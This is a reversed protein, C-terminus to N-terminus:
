NDIHQPIYSWQSPKKFTLNSLDPKWSENLLMENYSSAMLNGGRSSERKARSADMCLLMGNLTSVSYYVTKNGCRSWNTDNTKTGGNNGDKLHDEAFVSSAIGRSVGFECQEPNDNNAHPSHVDCGFFPAFFTEMNCNRFGCTGSCLKKSIDLYDKQPHLKIQDRSVAFMGRWSTLYATKNELHPFSHRMIEMEAENQGQFHWADKVYRSLSKYTTGPIHVTMDYIIHPNETLSGGQIFSVMPSM